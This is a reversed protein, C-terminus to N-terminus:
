RGSQVNLCYLIEPLHGTRRRERQALHKSAVLSTLVNDTLSYYDAADTKGFVRQALDVCTRGGPTAHHMLAQALVERPMHTPRNDQNSLLM